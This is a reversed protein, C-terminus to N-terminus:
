WRIGVFENERGINYPLVSVGEGAGAALTPDEQDPLELILQRPFSHFLPKSSKILLRAFM